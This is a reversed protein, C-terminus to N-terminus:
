KSLKKVLNKGCYFLLRRSVVGGIIVVGLGVIAGLEDIIESWNTFLLKVDIWDFISFKFSYNRSSFESLEEQNLRNNRKKLRTFPKSVLIAFSICAIKNINRALNELSVM